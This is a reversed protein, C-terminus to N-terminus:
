WHPEEESSLRMLMDVRGENFDIYANMYMKYDDGMAAVVRPAVDDQPCEFEIRRDASYFLWSVDPDNTMVPRQVKLVIFTSNWHGRRETPEEAIQM